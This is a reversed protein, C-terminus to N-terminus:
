KIITKNQQKDAFNISPLVIPQINAQATYSTIIARVFPFLIAPGNQTYFKKFLADSISEDGLFGGKIKILLKLSKDKSLVSVDLIVEVFRPKGKDFGHSINIEHHLETNSPLFHDLIEINIKSIRYGLFKFKSETAM